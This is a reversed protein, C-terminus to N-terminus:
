RAVVHWLFAAGTLDKARRITFTRGSFALTDNERVAGEINLLVMEDAPGAVYDPFADSVPTDSAVVAYGSLTHPTVAYAGTAPNYAGQTTRTLTAPWGAEAMGQAVDAAIAAWDLM